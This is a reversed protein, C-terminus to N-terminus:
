SGPKRDYSCAEAYKDVNASTVTEVPVLEIKELKRGDFYAAVQEAAFKGESVPIQTNTAYQVGARINKIGDSTCNSAVVVIGGAKVGLKLGAAQIAQITGAAQSDAMAFVGDVHGGFRVLLDSTV